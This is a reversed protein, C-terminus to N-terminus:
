ENIIEEQQATETEVSSQSVTGRMQPVTLGVEELSCIRQYRGQYKKSPEM